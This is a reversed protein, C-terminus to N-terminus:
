KLILMKKISEFEGAKMRYFYLGSTVIRGTNNRGDWIVKHYGAPKQADILTKVEQGLINYIKLSVKGAKPLQYKIVTQSNFPNPYNQYLVFLQVTSNVSTQEVSVAQPRYTITINQNGYFDAATDIGMDITDNLLLEDGELLESADWLVSSSDSGANVICISWQHEQGPGRYDEKLYNPFADIWLFAYPNFGPPPNIVDIGNDFGDTTNEQCGIKLEFINGRIQVQLPVSWNANSQSNFDSANQAFLPVNIGAIGWFLICLLGTKKQM